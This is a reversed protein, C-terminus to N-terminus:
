ILVDMLYPSSVDITFWAQFHSSDSVHSSYLGVVVSRSFIASFDLRVVDDAVNKFVFNLANSQSLHYGSIYRRRIPQFITNRAGAFRGDEWGRILVCFVVAFRAFFMSTKQLTHFYGLASARGPGQIM